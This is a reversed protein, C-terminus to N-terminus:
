ATRCYMYRVDVDVNILRNLATEIEMKESKRSGRLTNHHFDTKRLARFVCKINLANTVIRTVCM